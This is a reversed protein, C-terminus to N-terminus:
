DFCDTSVGDTDKNIKEMEEGVKDLYDKMEKHISDIDEQKMNPDSELASLSIKLKKGIGVFLDGIREIFLLIAKGQKIMKKRSHESGM